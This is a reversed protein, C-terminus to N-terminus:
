ALNDFIDDITKINQFYPILKDRLRRAQSEKITPDAIYISAHSPNEVNATDIVVFLQKEEDKFNRIDSVLIEVVGECNWTSNKRPIALRQEISIRLSELSIYKKRHVSFGEKLLDNITIARKQIKGDKIHHPNFLERLVVENDEVIGPSLNPEASESEDLHM